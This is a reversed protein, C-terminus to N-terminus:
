FIGRSGFGAAGRETSSLYNVNKFVVKERKHFVTQTIIQGPKILIPDNSKNIMLILVTGRFDPDIVGADCSVFYKKLLSSRPYIKGFYGCPIEM